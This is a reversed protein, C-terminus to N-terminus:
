RINWFNGFNKFVKPIMTFTKRKEIHIKVKQSKYISKDINRITACNM